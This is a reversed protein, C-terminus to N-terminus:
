RCCGLLTPKITFLHHKFTEGSELTSTSIPNQGVKGFFSCLKQSCAVQKLTPFFQGNLDVRELPSLMGTHISLFLFALLKTSLLGTIDKNNLRM